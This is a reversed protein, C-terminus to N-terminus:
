REPTSERVEDGPETRGPEADYALAAPAGVDYESVEPSSPPWTFLGGLSAWPM